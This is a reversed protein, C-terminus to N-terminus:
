LEVHKTKENEIHPKLNKWFNFRDTAYGEANKIVFFGDEDTGGLHAYSWPHKTAPEWKAYKNDPTPNGYVAFNVWMEVLAKRLILCNEDCSEQLGFMKHVPFFM